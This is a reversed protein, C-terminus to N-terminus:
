QAPRSRRFFDRLLQRYAADFRDYQSRLGAGPWDDPLLAAPLLPDSRFLRLTAAAVVFGRPLVSEDGDELAPTLATIAEALGTAQTAWSDLPWLEKVDPPTEFVIQGSLWHDGPLSPAFSDSPLNHPRAWVGQRLEAFRSEVLRARSASRETAPRRDATVLRLSWGRDWDLLPASRGVDQTRQREVLGSGLEYWGDKTTVEGAAAMRSLATRATGETIAFLEAAAVLVRVPLRPPHTGLLMSVLLSRATLPRLGLARDQETLRLPGGTTM